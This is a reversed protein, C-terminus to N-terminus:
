NSTVSTYDWPVNDDWFTTDSTTTVGSTTTWTPYYPYYPIYTPEGMTEKYRCAFVPILPEPLKMDYKEVENKFKCVDQKICGECINM